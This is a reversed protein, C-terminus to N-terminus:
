KKRLRQKNWNHMGIGTCISRVQTEDGLATPLARGTLYTQRSWPKQRIWYLLGMEERCGRWKKMLKNPVDTKTAKGYFHSSCGCWKVPLMTGRDRTSNWEAFLCTLLQQLHILHTFRGSFTLFRHKGNLFYLFVM